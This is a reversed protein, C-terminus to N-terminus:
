VGLRFCQEFTATFKWVGVGLWDFGWDACTFLEPRDVVTFPQTGNRAKLFADLTNRSTGAINATVSWARSVSNLSNLGDRGKDEVGGLGYKKRTNRTTFSISAGWAPVFPIVPAPM